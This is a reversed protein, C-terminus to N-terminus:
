PSDHASAAEEVWWWGAPGYTRRRGDDMRVVLVGGDQISYQAHGSFHEEADGASVTFDM